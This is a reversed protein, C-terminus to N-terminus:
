AISISWRKYKKPVKYRPTEKNGKLTRIEKLRGKSTLLKLYRKSVKFNKNYVTISVVQVARIDHVSKDLTAKFCRQTVVLKSKAQFERSLNM